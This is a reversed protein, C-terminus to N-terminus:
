KFADWVVPAPERAATCDASAAIVTYSVSAASANSSAPLAAHLVHRGPAAAAGSLLTTFLRGGAPGHALSEFCATGDVYGDITVCLPSSAGVEEDVPLWIALPIEDTLLSANPSPSTIQLAGGGGSGGSGGGGGGGGVGVSGGGVVEVYATAVCIVWLVIRPLCPQYM